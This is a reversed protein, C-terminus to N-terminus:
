ASGKTNSLERLCEGHKSRHDELQLHPLRYNLEPLAKKFCARVLELCRNIQLFLNNNSSKASIKLQFFNPYNPAQVWSRWVVFLHLQQM